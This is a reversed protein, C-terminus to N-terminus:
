PVCYNSTNRSATSLNRKALIKRRKRLMAVQAGLTEGPSLNKGDLKLDLAVLLKRFSSLNGLGRELHRVTPVSLGSKQALREQTLRESKRVNKLEKGLEFQFSDKFM